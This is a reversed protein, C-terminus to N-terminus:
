PTSNEGYKACWPEGGMEDTVASVSVPTDMLDTERYTATVVIEEMQPEEASSEEAANAVSLTSIFLSLACFAVLKKM